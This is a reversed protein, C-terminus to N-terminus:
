NSTRVALRSSRPTIETSTDADCDDAFEATVDFQYQTNRTLGTVTGNSNPTSQSKLLAGAASYTYIRYALENGMSPDWGPESNISRWDLSVSTRTKGTTVLGTPTPYTPEVCPAVPPPPAVMNRGSTCDFDTPECVLSKFGANMTRKDLAPAEDLYSGIRIKTDFDNSLMTTGTWTTQGNDFTRQTLPQGDLATYLRVWGAPGWKVHLVWRFWHGQLSEYTLGSTWLNVGNYSSRLKLANQDNDAWSLYPSGPTGKVQMWVASLGSGDAGNDRTFAGPVGAFAGGIVMEDGPKPLVADQTTVNLGAENRGAIDTSSTTEGPRVRFEAVFPRGQLCPVSQVGAVTPQFDQQLFSCNRYVPEPRPGNPYGIKYLSGYQATGVAANATAGADNFDGNFVKTQAHAPGVALGVVLVTTAAIGRALGM